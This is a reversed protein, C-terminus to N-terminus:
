FFSSSPDPVVYVADERRVHENARLEDLSDASAIVAGDRVAIWKGAYEELASASIPHQETIVSSM